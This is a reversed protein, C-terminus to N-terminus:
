LRLEKLGFNSMWTIVPMLSSRLKKVTSRVSSFIELNFNDTGTEKEGIHERLEYYM